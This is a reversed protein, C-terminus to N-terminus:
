PINLQSIQELAEDINKQTARETATVIRQMCNFNEGPSATDETNISAQWLIAQDSLQRLRWAIEVM